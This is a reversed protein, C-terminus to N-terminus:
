SFFPSFPLRSDVFLLLEGKQLEISFNKGLVQNRAGERETFNLSENRLEWRLNKSSLRAEGSPIISIIENENVEMEFNRYIPAAYRGKEYICLNMKRGYRMLISWNNITHELLGGHFGLILINQLSNEICWKLCKEFDNMDQDELLIVDDPKYQNVIPNGYFSDLDGIVKDAKIGIKHLEIAAGDAAIIVTNKVWRFVYDPLPSNLCLICDFENDFTLKLKKDAM